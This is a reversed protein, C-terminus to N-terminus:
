RILKNWDVTQNNSYIKRLTIVEEDKFLQAISEYYIAREAKKFGREECVPIFRYGNKGLLLQTACDICQILWFLEVTNFSIPHDKLKRSRLKLTNYKMEPVYWFFVDRNHIRNFRPNLTVEDIVLFPISLSIILYNDVNCYLAETKLGKEYQKCFPVFSNVYINAQNAYIRNFEDETVLFLEKTFNQADPVKKQQCFRILEEVASEIPPRLIKGIANPDYVYGWNRDDKDFLVKFITRMILHAIDQLEYLVDVYFWDGDDNTEFDTNCRMGLAVGTNKKGVLLPALDIINPNKPNIIEAWLIIRDTLHIDFSM